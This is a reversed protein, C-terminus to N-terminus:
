LLGRSQLVDVVSEGNIISSGVLLGSFGTFDMTRANTSDIGSELIFPVDKRDFMEAAEKERSEMKMTRLNRRNYGVIVNDHVPIREASEFDHFEILADMGYESASEALAALREGKMFDAILLVSDAGCFYADRIMNESDFFDKALLPINFPQSEALDDWSGGFRDPETLVSLGALKSLDLKGFYSTTSVLGKSEFGSPSRKKFEAILGLRGKSNKEEVSEKLSIVPRSRRSSGISARNRNNRYIEDVVSM